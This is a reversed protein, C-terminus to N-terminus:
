GGRVNSPSRRRCSANTKLGLPAVHLLGARSPQTLMGGPNSGWRPSLCSLPTLGKDSGTVTKKPTGRIVFALRVKNPADEGIVRAEARGNFRTLVTERLVAKGASLQGIANLRVAVFRTIAEELEDAPLDRKHQLVTV